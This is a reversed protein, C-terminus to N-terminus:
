WEGSSKLRQIEDNVYEREGTSLTYWTQGTMTEWKKFDKVSHQRPVYEAQPKHKMNHQHLLAALDDDLQLDSKTIARKPQPPVARSAQTTPKQSIAKPKHVDVVDGIKRKESKWQKLLQQRNVTSPQNEADGTPQAKTLVANVRTRTTTGLPELEKDLQTQKASPITPMRLAGGLKVNAAATSQAVTAIAGATFINSSSYPKRPLEHVVSLGTSDHSDASSASRRMSRRAALQTITSAAATSSSVADDDVSAGFLQRARLPSTDRQPSALTAVDTQLDATTEKNPTKAAFLRPRPLPAKFPSAQARSPTLPVDAAVTQFLPRAPSPVRGAVQPKSFIYKPSFPVRKQASSPSPLIIDDAKITSQTPTAPAFLKPTTAIQVVAQSKRRRTDRPFHAIHEVHFWADDHTMSLPRQFEMALDCYHPAEFEYDRDHVFESESPLLDDSRRRKADMM